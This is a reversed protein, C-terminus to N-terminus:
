SQWVQVLQWVQEEVVPCHKVQLEPAWSALLEHWVQEETVSPEHEDQLGPYISFLLVQWTQVLSVKEVPPVAVVQVAQM